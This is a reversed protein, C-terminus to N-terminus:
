RDAILKFRRPNLQYSIASHQFSKFLGDARIVQTPDIEWQPGLTAGLGKLITPLVGEVPETSRGAKCFFRERVSALARTTAAGSGSRGPKGLKQKIGHGIPM